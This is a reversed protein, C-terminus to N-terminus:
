SQEGNFSNRIRIYHGLRGFAVALIHLSDWTTM